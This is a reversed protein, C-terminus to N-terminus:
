PIRVIRRTIVARGNVALRAFYVGAALNDASLDVAYLGPTRPGEALHRLRRGAVDFLDLQIRAPRSLTYRLSVHNGFPNPAAVLIAPVGTQQRVDAALLPSRIFVLSDVELSDDIGLFSLEVRDVTNDVDFTDAYSSWLPGVPLDTYWLERVYDEQAHWPGVGLIRTVNFVVRVKDPGAPTRLRMRVITRGREPGFVITRANGRLVGTCRANTWGDAWGDRNRDTCFGPNPIQNGDFPATLVLHHFVQGLTREVMGTEVVFQCLSDLAWAASDADLVNHFVPIVTLGQAYGDVMRRLIEQLELSASVSGPSHPTRLLLAHQAIDREDTPNYGARELDAAVTNYGWSFVGGRGLSMPDDTLNWHDNRAREWSLGVRGAVYNYYQALTDRLARSWGQGPGGPQNWGQAGVELDMLIAISKRITDGWAVANGTDGWFAPDHHLTHDHVEHGHRALDIVMERTMSFSKVDLQGTIVAFTGKLGYRELIPFANEYQNIRGDDFQIVVRGDRALVRTGAALSVITCLFVRARWRLRICRFAPIRFGGRAFVM